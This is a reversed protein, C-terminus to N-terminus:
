LWHIWIQYKFNRCLFIMGVGAIAAIHAHPNILFLSLAGKQKALLKRAKILLNSLALSRGVIKECLEFYKQDSDLDTKWRGKRARILATKL